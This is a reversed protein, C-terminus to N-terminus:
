IIIYRDTCTVYISNYLTGCLMQCARTVYFSVIPIECASRKPDRGDGGGGGDGIDEERPCAKQFVRIINYYISYTTSTHIVRRTGIKYVISKM